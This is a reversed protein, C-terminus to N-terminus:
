AAPKTYTNTQDDRVFEGSTTPKIGGFLADLRDFGTNGVLSWYDSENSHGALPKGQGHPAYGDITTDRECGSECTGVTWFQVPKGLALLAAQMERSQNYPVLGDDPAHVMVVGDIGSAAIKDALFVNTHELYTQPAEEFTKDGMELEIGRAAEKAFPDGNATAVARAENYTEVVNNAGEIDFWWDYFGTPATALALGSANGGMSVGYAVVTEPHCRSDLWQAATNSAEAGERVQWTREATTGPYDMAVTIVDNLRAVRALHHAWDDSTHGYGHFFVVLGRLLEDPLAYLGSVGAISMPVARATDTSDTCGPPASDSVAEATVPVGLALVVAALLARRLPVWSSEDNNGRPGKM